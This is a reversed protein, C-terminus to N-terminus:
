EKWGNRHCVGCGDHELRALRPATAAPSDAHVALALDTATERLVPPALRAIDPTMDVYQAATEPPFLMGIRDAWSVLEDAATAAVAPSAQNHVYARLTQVDALMRQMSQAQPTPLPPAEQCGALLALGALAGAAALPAGFRRFTM